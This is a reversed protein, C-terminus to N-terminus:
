GERRGRGAGATVAVIRAVLRRGGYASDPTEEVAQRHPLLLGLRDEIPRLIEAHVHGIRPIRELVRVLRADLGLYRDVAERLLREFFCGTGADRDHRVRPRRPLFRDVLMAEPPLTEDYRREDDRKRSEQQPQLNTLDFPPLSTFVALNTNASPAARM